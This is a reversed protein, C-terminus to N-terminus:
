RLLTMRKTEVLSRGTRNSTEVARLRYLYVGSPLLSADWQVTHSGAPLVENALTCVGRGLVDFIELNVFSNAILQYSIATRPNFPNPYNQLLEFRQPTEGVITEVGTPTFASKIGNWIEPRGGDYSLAWIGIGGLDRANVLGYKMALSASDDYWAQRWTSGNNYAFWPVKTTQDFVKGYLAAMPEAVVYTRASATGTAPSKRASSQVPWDFGFWPVGLLLKRSPVGATLYTDVTRTINYSEGVLPAVPGATPSGGYYYDYGMVILYDCIQALQAFDWSGPVPWDVAPTAMSIEALPIEAKIRTSARRMFSVLNARQTNRVSELDFNVGDGNRAKLLTILTSIMREQKVTDSLLKDNMEFGFNTVTLTVKVGYLHAHGIIPDTYWNRVTMYGGTATDTEYSFYAIHSLAGYDYSQYAGSSAWYPHWGYVKRALGSVGGAKPLFPVAVSPEGTVTVPDNRHLESEMQHISKHEVEQQALALVPLLLALSLSKM